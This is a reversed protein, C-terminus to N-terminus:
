PHRALSPKVGRDEPIPVLGDDALLLDVEPLREAVSVQVRKPRLHDQVQPGEVEVGPATLGRERAMEALKAAM